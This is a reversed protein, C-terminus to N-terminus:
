PRSHKFAKLLLRISLLQQMRPLKISVSALRHSLLFAQPLPHFDPRQQSREGARAKAAVRLPPPPPLLNPLQSAHVICAKRWHTIQTKGTTACVLEVAAFDDCDSHIKCIKGAWVQSQVKRMPDEKLEVVDGVEFSACPPPARPAVKKFLRQKLPSPKKPPSQKQPSPSSSGM